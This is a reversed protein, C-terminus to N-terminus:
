ASNIKHYTLGVNESIHSQCVMFDIGCKQFHPISKITHKDWMTSLPVPIKRLTIKGTLKGKWYPFTLDEIRANKQFVKLGKM